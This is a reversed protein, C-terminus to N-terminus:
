VECSSHSPWKKRSVGWATPGDQQTILVGQLSKIEKATVTWTEKNEPLPASVDQPVRNADTFVTSHDDEEEDERTCNGTMGNCGAIQFTIGYELIGKLYRLIYHAANVHGPSPKTIYHGLMKVAVPWTVENLWILDGDNFAHHDSSNWEQESMEVHPIRDIPFDLWYLMKAINCDSMGFWELPLNAYASTHNLVRHKTPHREVQVQMWSIMDGRGHFWSEFVEAIRKLGNNQKITTEPISSTTWMSVWM